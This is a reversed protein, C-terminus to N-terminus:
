LHSSDDLPNAIVSNHILVFMPLYALFDLLDLSHLQQLEQRIAEEHEQHIGGAKLEVLLQEASICGQQAVAGEAQAELLFLFLQKAKYLKLQLSRFDMKSILTRMFEDMTAIKQALSAVVAFLRLDTLGDTVRFDVMELIRYVYIEEEDTLLEPPIIHKLAQLVQLCSIYGDGDSDVAEFARKYEALKEQSFICYKALFDFDEFKSLSCPGPRTQHPSSGQLKSYMNLVNTKREERTREKERMRRELRGPKGRGRPLAGGPEARGPCAPEERGSLGSSGSTVDSQSSGTVFPSPSGPGEETHDLTHTRQGQVKDTSDWRNSVGVDGCDAATLPWLEGTSVLSGPRRARLEDIHGAWEDAPSHQDLGSYHLSEEPEPRDLLLLQVRSLSGLDGSECAMTLAALGSSLETDTSREDASSLPNDLSLCSASGPAISDLEDFMRSQSCSLQSCCSSGTDSDGRASSIPPLVPWRPPPSLWDQMEVAPSPISSPRQPSPCSLRSDSPSTLAHDDHLDIFPDPLPDHPQYLHPQLNPGNYADPDPDQHLFLAPGTQSETTWDPPRPKTHGPGQLRPLRPPAHPPLDPLPDKPSCSAQASLTLSSSRLQSLRPGGESGLDSLNASLVSSRGSSLDSSRSFQSSPPRSFDSLSGASLSSVSRGSPSRNVEDLGPCPRQGPDPVPTRPVAPPSRLDICKAGEEAADSNEEGQVYHPCLASAPEPSPGSPGHHRSDTHSSPPPCVDPESSARSPLPCVPVHPIVFASHRGRTLGRYQVNRSDGCIHAKPAALVKTRHTPGWHPPLPRPKSSLFRAPRLDAPCAKM